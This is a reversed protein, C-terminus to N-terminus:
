DEEEAKVAEVQVYAYATYEGTVRNYNVMVRCGEAM